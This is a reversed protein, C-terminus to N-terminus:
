AESNQVCTLMFVWGNFSMAAEPFPEGHWDAIFYMTVYAKLLIETYILAFYGVILFPFIGYVKNSM